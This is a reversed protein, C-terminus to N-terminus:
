KKGGRIASIIWSIALCMLAFEWINNFILKLIEMM